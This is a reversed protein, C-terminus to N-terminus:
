SKRPTPRTPRPSIRLRAAPTAWPGGTSRTTASGWAAAAAVSSQVFFAYGFEMIAFMIMVLVPMVLAFEVAAAGRDLRRRLLHRGMYM